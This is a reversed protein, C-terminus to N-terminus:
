KAAKRRKAATRPKSAAKKVAHVHAPKGTANAVLRALAKAAKTTAATLKAGRYNVSFRSM